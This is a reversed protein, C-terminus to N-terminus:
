GEAIVSSRERVRRLMAGPWVYSGQKEIGFIKGTDSCLDSPAGGM